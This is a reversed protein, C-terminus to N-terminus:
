AQEGSPTKATNEPDEALTEGLSAALTQMIAPDNGAGDKFGRHLALDPSIIEDEACAAHLLDVLAISLRVGSVTSYAYIHVMDGERKATVREVLGEAWETKLDSGDGKGHPTIHETKFRPLTRGPGADFILTM